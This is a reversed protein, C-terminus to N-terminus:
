AAAPLAQRGTAAARLVPQITDAARHAATARATGAGLLMPHGPM